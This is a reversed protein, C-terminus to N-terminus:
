SNNFSGVAMFFVKGWYVIDLNLSNKDAIALLDSQEFFRKYIRFERGDFLARKNMGSKARRFIKTEENWLSDIIVFIGEPKLFAELTRFFVSLEADKFHSVLFGIVATDYSSDALAPNFIDSQIVATKDEIGLNHIKKSCEALMGKSQDILTISSCNRHYFPLWFGTGCAIDVCKGKVYRTVLPQIPLRDENYIDPEPHPTPFKGYYFAEYEPAREDYYKFLERNATDKKM